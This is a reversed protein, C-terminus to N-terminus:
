ASNDKREEIIHYGAESKLPEKFLIGSKKFM